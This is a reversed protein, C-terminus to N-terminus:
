SRKRAKADNGESEAYSGVKARRRERGDEDPTDGDGDLNLKHDKEYEKRIEVYRQEWERVTDEWTQLAESYTQKQEAAQDEFPKREESTAEKWMKSTMVRVENPGPKGKGARREGQCRKRAIEFFEKSYLLYANGAVKQPRWPREGIQAVVHQGFAHEYAEIRAQKSARSSTQPLVESPAKRKSGLSAVTSEKPPVLPAPIEIPGLMADVIESAARLGTLYAGHVTAPHTDTTHEGAFLLNGVPQAMTQYDELHMSPGASSYSGRAFKDSGWRTVISHIPSPVKAGYVSRLVETAEAVLEDNGSHETDFGADGAMLGILAPIGSTNTVNFWQFCRGRQSAYDAQKLSHRSSPTRLCGFIDKSNDWFPEEYVLVIKNLIGYGLRSIAEVKSPPLPPDFEVNGHKLVGLPITSVIYDADLASGDECEVRSPGEGNPSYVVRKVTVNKRVDLRSPTTALGWPVTQYGGVVMTHKGEWENGADIDWGGISLQNYNTANSYELNAVHWNLLRFDQPTLDVINKYQSIAEDMVSGLTADPATAAADLDLDHDDTVNEKLAWGMLRAKFAAKVTAATGPQVHTRGTARDTSIPVFNVQPGLSQQSVPPAQPLSAAAEEVHAITKQGESSSDRGEDISDKNGEILKSPPNKFKYDSVRELCDNYLKEVLRDRKDDVPKGNTDYLTTDPRLAYYPLAMQGRVLVNLPNGREFSHRRGKFGLLHQSRSGDLARSYVRGGLRNRGEVVIVRPTGEGLDRLQRTYHRFLSDLQRACGLGAMGAGIIVVTKGKKSQDANRSRKKLMTVETCGFNIYGARVLWDYCVSAANFWRADKACGVAEERSVCIRPNSLWLRLIGNRVNLYTTVQAHTIHSRLMSYEDQHLAYPNLRSSEAAAICQNAYEYPALDAPISARPRVNYTRRRARVPAATTTVNNISSAVGLDKPGDVDVPTTAKSSSSSTTPLSALESQDSVASTSSEFSPTSAMNDMEVDTDDIRVVIESETRPTETSISSDAGYPTCPDLVLSAPLTKTIDVSSALLSELHQDLEELDMLPGPGICNGEELLAEQASRMAPSGLDRRPELCACAAVYPYSTPPGPNTYPSPFDIPTRPRGSSAAPAERIFSGKEVAADMMKNGSIMSTTCIVINRRGEEKKTIFRLAAIETFTIGGVFVVFVTKKDGGGSLLARAKVAKDEGKQLEDFTQGRVHKVAEDFGRWGQAGGGGATGTGTAGNGRTISLLYQKQLICQVLRISLPAYGSYVYAIDNPDHENVEDVILRLQKRLYTYNTKTGTAAGSGSMPIMSAMPSARSLFLQLKELNHLTLLHQYGYGELVLRRLQDFDKSKIGGSICSYICLLRLIERLPVDRAILEEIADLQSSPDAGAALNQQVELMRSFQEARTHKMIEEALGTHVKLSQHETQYGPLKKVFDKLEATTKSTHRSDFDSQLRRAVKNLLTGVIAFNADRLGDYLKDSSDLQIKRKRSIASPTPTSATSQSASQPLAGVITSDVDTQNNQIGWVEDLLGEYTLQTLLPTVLDVERDIIIVSEVTNSPSLGSKSGESADEGALIEQRMRTLLEAVRKANDGKGIVRPFLGHKLQIDMLAKAMLFTPTTDKRLFLDQFSNDLELSLVDRELPFFYLPLEAINVDGLVGAEELLKDSVLTRRPVWFVHFDHGTQSERQLRKIQDAISQAHRACEGRAMFVVNRQSTDANGNELFFFKDVGYDQLTSVKAVVGIPGALSREIVLNKKGRVGELLYLLDKHAKDRIQDTDFGVHPAM